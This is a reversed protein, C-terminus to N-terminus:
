NLFHVMYKLSNELRFLKRLNPETGNENLDLCLFGDRSTWNIKEAFGNKDLDFNAGDGKKEPLVAYHLYFGM